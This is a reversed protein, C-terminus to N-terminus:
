FALSSILSSATESVEIVLLTKDLFFKAASAKNGVSPEKRKMTKYPIQIIREEYKTPHNDPHNDSRALCFYICKAAQAIEKQRDGETTTPLSLPCPFLSYYHDPEEEEGRKKERQHASTGQVNHIIGHVRLWTYCMVEPMIKNYGTKSLRM